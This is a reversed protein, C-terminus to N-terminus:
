AAENKLWAGVSLTNKVNSVAIKVGTDLMRPSINEIGLHRFTSVLSQLVESEASIDKLEILGWRSTENFIEVSKCLRDHYVNQFDKFYKGIKISTNSTTM